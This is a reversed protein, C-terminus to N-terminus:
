ELENVNYIPENERLIIYYIQKENWKGINLIGEYSIEEDNINRLIVLFKTHGLRLLEEWSIFKVEGPILFKDLKKEQYASLTYQLDELLCKNCFEIKGEANVILIRDRIKDLFEKM